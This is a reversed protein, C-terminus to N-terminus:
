QIKTTLLHTPRAKSCCVNCALFVYIQFHIKNFGVELFHRMGFAKLTFGFEEEFFCKNTFHIAFTNLFFDNGNNICLMLTVVVFFFYESPIRNRIENWEM